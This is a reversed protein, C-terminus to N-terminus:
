WTDDSSMCDPCDCYGSPDNGWFAHQSAIEVPDLDLADRLDAVDVGEDGRCNRDIPDVILGACQHVSVYMAVGAIAPPTWTHALHPQLQGCYHDAIM